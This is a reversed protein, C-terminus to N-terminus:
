IKKRSKCLQCIVYKRNGLDLEKLEGKGCEQCINSKITAKVKYTKKAPVPKYWDNDYKELQKLRQRLQRNEKKLERIQGLYFEEQKGHKSRAM